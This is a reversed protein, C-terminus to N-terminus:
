NELKNNPSFINCVISYEFSFLGPNINNYTHVSVLLVNLFMKLTTLSFLFMSERIDCVQIFYM